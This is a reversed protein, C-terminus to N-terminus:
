KNCELCNEASPNAVLRAESIMKGCNECRGYEGSEIKKLAKIILNLSKELSNKLNLSKEYAGVEDINDDERQGYDPFITKYKGGTKNAITSLEREM